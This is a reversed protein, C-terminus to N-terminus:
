AASGDPSTPNVPALEHEKFVRRIGGVLWVGVRGNSAIETVVGVNGSRQVRVRDGIRFRRPVETRYRSLDVVNGTM